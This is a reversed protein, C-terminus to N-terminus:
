SSAGASSRLTSHKGPAIYEQASDPTRGKTYVIMQGKELFHDSVGVAADLLGGPNMRLDLVLKQM